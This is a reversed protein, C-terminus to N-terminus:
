YSLQHSLSSAEIGTNERLRRGGATRAREYVEIMRRANLVGDFNIRALRLAEISQRIAKRFGVQDSLARMETPLRESGRMITDDIAQDLLAKAKQNQEYIDKAM